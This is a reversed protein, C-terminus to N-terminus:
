YPVFAVAARVLLPEGVTPATIPPCFGRLPLSDEQCHSCVLEAEESTSLPLPLPASGLGVGGPWFRTTDKGKGLSHGETVMTFGAASSGKRRPLM